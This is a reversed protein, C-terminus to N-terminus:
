VKSKSSLFLVFYAFNRKKAQHTSPLTLASLRKSIRLTLYHVRCSQLTKDIRIWILCNIIWKPKLKIGVQRGTRIGGLTMQMTVIFVQFIFASPKSLLQDWSRNNLWASPQRLKLAKADTTSELKLFKLNMFPNSSRKLLKEFVDFSVSRRPETYQLRKVEASDVLLEM